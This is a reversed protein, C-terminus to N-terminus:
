QSARAFRVPAPPGSGGQPSPTPHEKEPAPCTAPTPERQSRGVLAAEEQQVHELILALGSMAGFHRPELALVKEIDQMSRGFNEQGADYEDHIKLQCSLFYFNPCFM